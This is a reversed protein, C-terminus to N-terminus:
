LSDANVNKEEAKKIKEYEAEPIEYFGEDTQEEALYIIRGYTEGNTIIKGEDAMLMIRSKM